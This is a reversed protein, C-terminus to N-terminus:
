KRPKSPGSQSTKARRRTPTKLEKSNDRLGAAESQRKPNKKSRRTAKPGTGSPQQKLGSSTFNSARTQGDQGTHNRTGNSSAKQTSVEENKPVFEFSIQLKRNKALQSLPERLMAAVAQGIERAVIQVVEDKGKGARTFLATLLAKTANADINRQQEEFKEGSESRNGFVKFLSDKFSKIEDTM